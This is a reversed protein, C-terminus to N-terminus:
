INDLEAARLLHEVYGSMDKDVVLLFDYSILKLM